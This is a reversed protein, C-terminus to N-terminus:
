LSVDFASLYSAWLPAWEGPIANSPILGGICSVRKLRLRLFTTCCVGLLPAIIAWDGYLFSDQPSFEGFFCTNDRLNHPNDLM